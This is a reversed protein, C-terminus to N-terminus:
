PELQALISDSNALYDLVARVRATHRLDAHTLLWLDVAIEDIEDGLRTLRADRGALYAPLVAVGIGAQVAAYIGLVSNMRCVVMKDDAHNKMWAHLQPYPMAPSPGIWALPQDPDTVAGKAQLDHRGYVAQRIVGLKRGVLHEAPAAAPRIAIDAERLSLDSIENSVSIELVIEPALRRFESLVPTLLAHLLTDTTAIRVVGSPRLDGGSLRRETENTLDAIQRAIAVIEEGAATPRYGSRFREFLRVGLKAEIVNIRRFVTPHSLGALRAAKNLSGADAIQLVIRYDGWDLENNM